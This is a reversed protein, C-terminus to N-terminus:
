FFFTLLFNAGNVTVKLVVACYSIKSYCVTGIVKTEDLLICNEIYVYFNANTHLSTENDRQSRSCPMKIGMVDPIHM